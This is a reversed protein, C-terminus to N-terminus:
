LGHMDDPLLNFGKFVLHAPKRPVAVHELTEDDAEVNDGM